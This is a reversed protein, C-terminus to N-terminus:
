PHRGPRRKTKRKREEYVLEFVFDKFRDEDLAPREIMTAVTERVAPKLDDSALWHTCQERRQKLFEAYVSGTAKAKLRQRFRKQREANSLAM